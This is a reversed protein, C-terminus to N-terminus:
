PTLAKGLVAQYLLPVFRWLDEAVFLIQYETTLLKQIIPNPRPDISFSSPLGGWDGSYRLARFLIRLNYDNLSYGIFLTPNQALQARVALPVPNLEDADRMRLVFTIYDEETVVISPDEREREFDGHIKLVFPRGPGVSRSPSKPHKRAATYVSVECDKGAQSLAREFLNDFNTTIVHSFPLEALARLMPSPKRNEQVEEFLQQILKPRSHKVREYYLSIRRLDSLDGLIATDGGCAAALTKSLEAGRPPADAAVYTFSSGDPPLSHAGAGLFLTCEGSRVADAVQQLETAPIPAPEPLTALSESHGNPM